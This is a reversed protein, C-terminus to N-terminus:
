GLWLLRTRALQGANVAGGPRAPGQGRGLALRPRDVGARKSTRQEGRLRARLPGFHRERVCGVWVGVCRALADAAWPGVDTPRLPARSVLESTSGAAVILWLRAAVRPRVATAAILLPLWPGTSARAIAEAECRATGVTLRTGIWWPVEAASRLRRACVAARALEVALAATPFGLIATAWLAVGQWSLCLAPLGPPHRRSLAATSMNYAVRRSFWPRWDQRHDHAVTVTPDYRVRWGADVLRWVLDVDEGVDLQADFGQAVASVRAVVAASPVYPIPSGPRVLGPNRGMDLASHRSEYGALPGRRRTLAGIRPAALAVTPDALHAVLRVFFAEPVVCDSDVFAVFPTTVRGLGANRAAAPGRRDDLRVLLAGAEAAVAAIASADSSADDVVIVRHDASIAALCRRLQAGRDRVPVVVTVAGAPAGRSPDPHVLGADLLRRALHRAALGSGIPASDWWSSILAAGTPTLRIARFPSGGLLLDGDVRLTKPDPRLRWGAPAPEDPCRV